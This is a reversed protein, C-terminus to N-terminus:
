WVGCEGKRILKKEFFKLEKCPRTITSYPDVIYWFVTEKGDRDGVNTVSVSVQFKDNKTVHSKSAVPSGYIFHTYSLGHGFPYLPESTM